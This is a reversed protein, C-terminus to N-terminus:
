MDQHITTNEKSCDMWQVAAVIVTFLTFLSQMGTDLIDAAQVALVCHARNWILTCHMKLKLGLGDVVSTLATFKDLNKLWPSCQLKNSIKHLVGFHAATATYRRMQATAAFTEALSRQLCKARLQELLVPPSVEWLNGRGESREPALLQVQQM